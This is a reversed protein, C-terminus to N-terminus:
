YGAARDGKTLLFHELLPSGGLRSHLNVLGVDEEGDSIELTPQHYTFLNRGSEGTGVSPGRIRTSWNAQVVRQPKLM